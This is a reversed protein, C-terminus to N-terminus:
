RKGAKMDPESVHELHIGRGSGRMQQIVVKAYGRAVFFERLTELGQKLKEDTWTNKDIVVVILDKKKQQYFFAKLDALEFPVSDAVTKGDWNAPGIGVLLKEDSTYRAVFDAEEVQDFARETETKKVLEGGLLLVPFVLCGLSFGLGKMMIGSPRDCNGQGSM